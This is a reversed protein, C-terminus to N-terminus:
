LTILVPSYHALLPHRNAIKTKIIISVKQEEEFEGDSEDLIGHENYPFDTYTDNPHGIRQQIHMEDWFAIAHVSGITLQKSHLINYDFKEETLDLGWKTQAEIPVEKGLRVLFQTCFCLRARKWFENEDDAQSVTLTTVRRQRIRQISNFIAKKGIFDEKKIKVTENYSPSEQGKPLLATNMLHSINNYSTGANRLVSIMHESFSGKKIKHLKTQSFSKRKASYDKGSDLCHKTEEIVSTITTRHPIKNFAKHICDVVGNPGAFPLHKQQYYNFEYYISIADRIREEKKHNRKPNTANYITQQTGSTVPVPAKNTNNTPSKSTTPSSQLTSPKPDINNLNPVKEVEKKTTVNPVTTAPRKRSNPRNKSFVRKRKKLSCPIPRKVTPQPAVDAAVDDITETKTMM